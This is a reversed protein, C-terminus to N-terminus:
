RCEAKTVYPLVSGDAETEAGVMQVMRVVGEWGSVFATRWVFKSVGGNKHRVSKRPAILRLQASDTVAALAVTTMTTISIAAAAHITAAAATMEAVTAVHTVTAVAAADRHPSSNKPPLM